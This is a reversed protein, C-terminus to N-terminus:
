LMVKRADRMAEVEAASERADDEAQMRCAIAQAERLRLQSELKLMYRFAVLVAERAAETDKHLGHQRTERWVAATYADLLAVLDSETM